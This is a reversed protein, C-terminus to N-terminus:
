EELTPRYTLEDLSISEKEPTDVEVIESERPLPQGTVYRLDAPSSPNILGILVRIIGVLVTIAGLGIILGESSYAGTHLAFGAFIVLIGVLIIILGSSTYRSMKRQAAKEMLRTQKALGFRRKRVM